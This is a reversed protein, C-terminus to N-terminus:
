KVFYEKLLRLYYSAHVTMDSYDTTKWSRKKVFRKHVKKFESKSITCGEHPGPLFTIKGHVCQITFKKKGGITDFIKPKKLGAEMKKRSKEFDLAKLQIEGRNEMEEVM